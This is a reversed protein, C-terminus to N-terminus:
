SFEIDGRKQAERLAAMYRERGNPGLRGVVSEMDPSLEMDPGSVGRKTTGVTASSSGIPKVPETPYGELVKSLALVGEAFRPHNFVNFRDFNGQQAERMAAAYQSQMYREARERVNKNGMFAADKSFTNKYSTKIADEAYAARAQAQAAVSRQAIYQTAAVNQAIPQVAQALRQEVLEAIVAEPDKVFRELMADSMVSSRPQQRPPAAQQQQQQYYQQQYYADSYQPQPQAQPQEIEPYLWSPFASTEPTEPPNPDAAPADQPEVKKEIIKAPETVEPPPDDLFSIGETGADYQASIDDGIEPLDAM